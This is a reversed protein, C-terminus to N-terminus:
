AAAIQESGALLATVRAAPVPRSFLYGQVEDCGEALVGRLQEETEVGEAITTINLSRCLATVAHVIARCDERVPMDRVFSQDIKLADFPFKCLYSLSSYGTGFDDMAITVGLQKLAHLIDVVKRSDQLLLTETIELELRAPALGAAALASEVSAVLTPSAFQAPSLNVAIRVSEPWNAAERCATHLVWHGLPVILGCEEALPVFESPSVPGIGPCNWRLLAEFGCVQRDSLRIVPQFQLEFDMGVLARRLNAEMARRAEAAAEMDREFFRWTGRGSQKARYMALGANRMLVDADPSADSPFSIGVSAGVVMRDGAVEYPQGVAEVLRRAVSEARAPDYSQLLVAFEDGGMRAATDEARLCGRLRAAVLVLLADGAPHGFTDNVAKFRDLDLLLVCPEGSSGPHSLADQLRERFTVRNPLGTLSDHRALHAIEAGKSRLDAGTLRLQGTLAELHLAHRLTGILYAVVGVTVAMGLLLAALGRGGIRGVPPDAPRALLMGWERDAVPVRAEEYRRARMEAESPAAAPTVRARSSHWYILRQGPAAAPDFLYADLDHEAPKGALAREVLRDIALVGIVFGRLTRQDPAGGAYVPVFTIFGGTPDSPRPVSLWVRSTVAPRGTQRARTLAHRREQESALDYGLVKHEVESSDIYLAPFYEARDAARLMRNAQDRERIEFAPYGEARVAQEFGSREAATVRPAWTTDRLGAALTERLTRAFSTFEARTVSESSEFYAKELVIVDTVQRLALGLTQRYDRTVDLFRENELRADANAFIVALVVSVILGVAAAAAIALARGRGRPDRVRRAAPLDASDPGGSRQRGQRPM